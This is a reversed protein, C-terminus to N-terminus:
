GRSAGWGPHVGPVGSGPHVRPWGVRSAGRPCGVRPAGRPCEVRPAGRPCGVRSAGRPCGVRSAGQSVGGQICGQSVGGQIYGQPVGGQICGKSVGVRSAFMIWPGTSGLGSQTETGPKLRRFSSPSPLLQGSASASGSASDVEPSNSVHCETSRHLSNLKVISDEEQTGSYFTWLLSINFQHSLAVVLRGGPTEASTLVCLAFLRLRFHVPPVCFKRVSVHVSGPQFGGHLTKVCAPLMLIKSARTM